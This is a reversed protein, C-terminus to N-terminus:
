CKSTNCSVKISKYVCGPSGDEEGETAGARPPLKSSMKASRRAFGVNSRLAKAGSWTRVEPSDHLRALLLGRWASCLAPWRGAHVAMSSVSEHAAETRTVQMALVSSVLHPHNHLLLHPVPHTQDRVCGAGPDSPSGASGRWDRLFRGAWQPGARCPAKRLGTKRM